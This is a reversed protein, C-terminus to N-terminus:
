ARDDWFAAFGGRSSVDVQEGMYVQAALMWVMCRTSESSIRSEFVQGGASTSFDSRSIQTMLLHNPPTDVVRLRISRTEAAVPLLFNETSSTAAPNPATGRAAAASRELLPIVSSIM